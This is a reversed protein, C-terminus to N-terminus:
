NAEQQVGVDAKSLDIVPTPSPPAIGYLAFDSFSKKRWLPHYTLSRDIYDNIAVTIDQVWQKKETINKACFVVSAELSHVEFEFEEDRSDRRFDLLMANELSVIEVPKLKPNSDFLMSLKSEEAILLCDNFLFTQCYKTVNWSTVERPKESNSNKRGAKYVLRGERILKRFPLLLNMVPPDLRADIHMLSKSSEEERLRENANKAIEEMKLLAESLLPSDPHTSPTHRQIEKLLLIYRPIRQFPMSALAQLDLGSSSPQNKCQKFFSSVETRKAASKITQVIQPFHSIYHAYPPKLFRSFSTFADGLTQYYSWKTSIKTELADLLLANYLKIMEIQPFVISVEDPTLLPTDSTSKAKLPIYYVQIIVDLFKIYDRETILIEQAVSERRKFHKFEKRFRYGRYVKQICAASNNEKRMKAAIAL